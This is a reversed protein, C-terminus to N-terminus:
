EDEDLEDLAATATSDDLTGDFLNAGMSGMGGGFGGGMGPIDGMGSMAKMIDDSDMNQYLEAAAQMAERWADKDNLLEEMGPMGGMMGKLMPNNLIMQRSQELREPDNMMQQFMPSNMVDKMAKMSDQMSPAAGGGGGGMSKMIEDLQSTDVGSQKLYDAMPNSAAAPGASSASATAAAGTKAKKKKSGGSSSSSSPVMNLQAGETPVGADALVTDADLKKGGFIVRGQQKSAVGSQTELQEQLDRVTTVDNVDYQKGRLTVTLSNIPASALVTTTVV